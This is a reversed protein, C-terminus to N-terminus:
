FVYYDKTGFYHCENFYIYMIQCNNRLMSNTANSLAYGANERDELLMSCFRSLVAPHNIKATKKRYLM